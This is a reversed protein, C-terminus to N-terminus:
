HKVASLRAAIAGDLNPLADLVAGLRENEVGNEAFSPM